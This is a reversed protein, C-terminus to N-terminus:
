SPQTVLTFDSTNYVPDLELGGGLNLGILTTFTGSRSGYTMVAFTNGNAPNFANILSVNFTGALTALGGVALKDFTGAGTGGLEINLSGTATQTYNGTVTITGATGTGGPRVSGKNTLNGSVTGIGSLIGADINVGTTSGLTTGSTLNTTGATQTYANAISLTGSNINTTGTNTLSIGAAITTTGAGLRNLTGANNIAHAGPQLLDVDGDGNLNLVAGALNNLTGVTGGIGFSLATGSYTLTGHNELTRGLFKPSAAPITGNVGAAVITKGTGSQTGGAFSYSNTVTLIGGGNVTGRRQTLRAISGSDGTNVTITAGTLAVVGNGTGAAGNVLTFTGATLTFAGFVMNFAGSFSGGATAYVAGATIEMSGGTLHFPIAVTNATGASKKFLGSNNIAHASNGWFQAMNGDGTIDFTAGVLNNIIGASTSQPGFDFSSGSYTITGANQLVRGLLKQAAGSITGTASATINTQGTGDMYGGSYTWSSTITVTGSGNSIGGQQDFNAISLNSNITLTGSALRAIGTNTISSGPALTHTGGNTNFLMVAGPGIAFPGSSTGTSANGLELTGATINATGSNNFGISTIRTTGAGSRNWTGANNIVHAVNGWFIDFDGDDVSNFVGGALNNLTGAATSTPGFWFNTGTYSLNGSNELIRGLFKSSTTSITGTTPASLTTKGSGQMTGGTWTFTTNVTVNGSGDLTGFTIELTVASFNVNIIATGGTIRTIPVTYAGNVTTTGANFDVTGAGTISSAASLSHTGDGFNLTTGASVAFAGTSTGGGDLELTGATVNVTGTNNFAVGNIVTSGAGSRNFTGNNNIAHSANGWFIGVDGDGSANFTAGVLNNLVGVSTTQPGFLLGSGTYDITKSNQLVRGLFKNAGSQISGNGGGSFNTQGTGDM